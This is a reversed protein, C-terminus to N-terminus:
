RWIVPALIRTGIAMLIAAVVACTAVKLTWDRLGQQSSQIRRVPRKRDAIVMIIPVIVTVVLVFGGAAIFFLGEALKGNSM